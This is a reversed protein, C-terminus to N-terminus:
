FKVQRRGLNALNVYESCLCKIRYDKPTAELSCHRPSTGIESTHYVNTFDQSLITRFGNRLMSTSRTVTNM